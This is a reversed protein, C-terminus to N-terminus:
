LKGYKYYSDLDDKTLEITKEYSSSVHNSKPKHIHVSPNGTSSNATFKSTFSKKKSLLYYGFGLGLALGALHALHAVGSGGTFFGLLDIFAFIIGATRMSMPVVFFFLVRMKPFLMIVMGLIGMIAGSAGLAAPYYLAALSALLGAAFYLLLFRKKGIKREVLPGFLLLAYMNFLLHAFSGHLFMATILTWPQQWVIASTLMFQETIKPVFSQFLFIVVNILILTFSVNNQFFKKVQM